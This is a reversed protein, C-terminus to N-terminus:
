SSPLLGEPGRGRDLVRHDDLCEPCAQCDLSSLFLVTTFVAVDDTAIGVLAEVWAIKHPSDLNFLNQLIPPLPPREFNGQISKVDLRSEM